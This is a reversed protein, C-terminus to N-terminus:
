WWVKKIKLLYAIINTLPHLVLTLILSAIIISQPIDVMLSILLFFGIIFDWQDLPPVPTGRKLNLRRKIFSAIIDGGVSGLGALLGLLLWNTNQYDIVSINQFLEVSFLLKQILITIIAVLIGILTGRYTKGPGFIYEKGFKKGHDLPIDLFKWKNILTGFSNAFYAPLLLYLSTIILDM